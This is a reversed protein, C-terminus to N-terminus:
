EVKAASLSINGRNFPCRNYLDYKITPFIIEVRDILLGLMPELRRLKLLQTMFNLYNSGMSPSDISQTSNINGVVLYPRYSLHEQLLPVIDRNSAESWGMSLNIQLM